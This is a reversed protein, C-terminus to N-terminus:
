SEVTRTLHKTVEFSCKIYDTNSETIQPTGTVIADSITGSGYVLGSSVVTTGGSATVTPATVGSLSVKMGPVPITEDKKIIAELSIKLRHNTETLVVTQGLEDKAEYEDAEVSVSSSQWLFESYDNGSPLTFTGVLYETSDNTTTTTTETM